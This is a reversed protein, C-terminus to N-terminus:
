AGTAIGGIRPFLEICVTDLADLVLLLTDQCIASLDRALADTFDSGHDFTLLMVGKSSRGISHGIMETRLTTLFPDLDLVNSTVDRVDRRPLLQPENFTVSNINM